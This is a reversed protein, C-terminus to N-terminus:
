RDVRDYTDPDMCEILDSAEHAKFTVTLSKRARGAAMALLRLHADRESDGAEAGHPLTEANLGVMIVHDFELGKVSHMTSLAIQEPGKPWESSRTLEVYALGAQGLRLRVYDFWAWGKPHLIAVSEEADPDLGQLFDIVHDMQQSFRGTVLLPKPGQGTCSSFDPMSADDTVEVHELLAAAFRAIQATNRFNKSLQRSNSPGVTLGVEGWSFRQPYIRQAADMVFTVSHERDLHRVIARVQNASFDQAEDVVVVHYSGALAKQLMQEALDVWDVHGNQQKWRRYPEIVEDILQQRKARAVRPAVGRGSRETTLYNGVDAQPFRGLVYDVESIM